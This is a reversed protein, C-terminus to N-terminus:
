RIFKEPKMRIIKVEKPNDSVSKAYQLQARAHDRQRSAALVDGTVVNVVAYVGSKMKVNKM